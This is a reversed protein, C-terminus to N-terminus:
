QSSHSTTTAAKQSVTQTSHSKRHSSPRIDPVQRSTNNKDDVELDSWVSLDQEMNDVLVADMRGYRMALTLSAM